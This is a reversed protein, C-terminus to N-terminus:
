PMLVAQVYSTNNKPGVVRVTVRYYARNALQTWNGQYSLMQRGTGLSMSGGGSEKASCTAANIQGADDCMRHIIYSAQNGAADTGMAGATDWNFDDSTDGPTKNGTLDLADQSTAHYYGSDQLLNRGPTQLFGLAAEVASDASHTASQKFGINGAILSSTDVSRIMAISALTMAVLIIMTIVLIVGRQPALRAAAFPPPSSPSHVRIFTNM